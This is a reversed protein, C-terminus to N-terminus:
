SDIEKPRTRSLYSSPIIQILHRYANFGKSALEFYTPSARFSRPLVGHFSHRQSIAAVAPDLCIPGVAQRSHVVDMIQSSVQHPKCVTSSGSWYSPVRTVVGQSSKANCKFVVVSNVLIGVEKVLERQLNIDIGCIPTDVIDALAICPTIAKDTIPAIDIKTDIISISCASM